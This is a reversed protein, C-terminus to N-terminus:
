VEKKEIGYLAILAAAYKKALYAQTEPSLRVTRAPLLNNQIDATKVALAAADNRIDAYYDVDSRGDRTVLKVTEIVEASVGASALDEATWATDELVDHLWGADVVAEPHGGGRLTAAVGCVHAAFYNAGGKDTQGAHALRAIDQAKM